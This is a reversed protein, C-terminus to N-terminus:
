KAFMTPQAVPATSVPKTRVFQSPRCDIATKRSPPPVSHATSSIPARCAGRRSRRRRPPMATAMRIAPASRLDRKHRMAHQLVKLALTHGIMIKRMDDFIAAADDGDIGVAGHEAVAHIVPAEIGAELGVPVPDDAGVRQAQEMAAGRLTRMIPSDDPEHAWTIALLGATSDSVM